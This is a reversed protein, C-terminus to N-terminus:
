FQSSGANSPITRQNAHSGKIPNQNNLILELYRVIRLSLSERPDYGLRRTLFSWIMESTPGDNVGRLARSVSMPSVGLAGAIGSRTIGGLLLSLEVRAQVPDNQNLPSARM